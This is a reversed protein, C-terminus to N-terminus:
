VASSLDPFNTSSFWINNVEPDGIVDCILDFEFHKVIQRIKNQRTSRGYLISLLYLLMSRIQSVELYSGLSETLMNLTLTM